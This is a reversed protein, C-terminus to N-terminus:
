ALGARHALVAAVLVRGLRSVRPAEWSTYPAMTVESVLDFRLLDAAIKAAKGTARGSYVVAFEPAEDVDALVVIYGSM